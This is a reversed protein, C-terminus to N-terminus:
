TNEHASEGIRQKLSEYLEFILYLFVSFSLTISFTEVYRAPDFFSWFMEHALENPKHLVDWSNFRLYRGLYIGYGNSLIVSFKICKFALGSKFCPKLISFIKEATLIFFVLGLLSFSLILILDFWMPAVLKKTLHFLDTVIYPSNPLFLLALGVLLYREWPERNANYKRIFYYPLWALFLNWILFLFSYHGTFIIRIVVLTVCFLVFKLINSVKM